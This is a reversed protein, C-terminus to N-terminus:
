DPAGACIRAAQAAVHVPDLTAATRAAQREIDASLEGVCIDFSTPKIVIAAAVIISGLMIALAVLGPRM